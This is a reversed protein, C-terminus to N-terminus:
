LSTAVMLRGIDETSQEGCTCAFVIPILKGFPVQGGSVIGGVVRGRGGMWYCYLPGSAVSSQELCCLSFFDLQPRDHKEREREKEGGGREREKREERSNDTKSGMFARSAVLRRQGCAPSGAVVAEGEGGVSSSNPYMNGPNSKALKFPVQVGDWTSLPNSQGM